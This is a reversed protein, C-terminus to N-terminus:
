EKRKNLTDECIRSPFRDVTLTLYLVNRVLSKKCLDKLELKPGNVRNKTTM